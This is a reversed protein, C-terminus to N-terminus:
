RARQRFEVAGQRIEHQGQMGLLEAICLDHRRREHARLGHVARPLQRLELFVQIAGAIIEPQNRSGFHRQRAQNGVRHGADVFQRKAHGCPRRTEPGFRPRRALIRAAHQALMLEALHFQNANRM